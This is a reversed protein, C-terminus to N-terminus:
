AFLEQQQPQQAPASTTAPQRRRKYEDQTEFVQHGLEDRKCTGDPNRVAMLWSTFPYGFADKVGAADQAEAWAIYQDPSMSSDVGALRAGQVM